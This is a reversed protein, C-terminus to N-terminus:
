SLGADGYLMYVDSSYSGVQIVHKQRIVREILTSKLLLEPIMETVSGTTVVGSNDVPM